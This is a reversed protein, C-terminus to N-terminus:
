GYQLPMTQVSSDEGLSEVLEVLDDKAEVTHTQLRIAM